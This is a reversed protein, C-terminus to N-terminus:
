PVALAELEPNLTETKYTPPQMPGPSMMLQFNM